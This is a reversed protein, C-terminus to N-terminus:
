VGQMEVAHCLRKASGMALTWGLMGQGCNMFLGAVSSQGIIPRSSPTMPRLGSWPHANAHYDAAEPFVARVTRLLNDFRAQRFTPTLGGVDALGAFRVRQDLQCVVFKNRVDTISVSPTRDTVPLTISYGQVPWIPVDVKASALIPATAAGMAVVATQAPIEGQVTEIAALRGSIVRLREVRAGYAFSVGYDSALLDALGRCFLHCDGAEEHPSWVAGALPGQYAQLAPERDMVERATLIEQDTGFPLKLDIMRRAKELSSADPYLHAKASRRHSFPISHRGLLTAMEARSELALELVALTNREFRGQTTNRLFDLGWRAFRVSLEPEMRFAPDKGRLLGALQRRLGPNAMADTYAYSLQAGNGFSAGDRGPGSAADLVQVEHGRCALMYATTLGVVGAGLVHVRRM